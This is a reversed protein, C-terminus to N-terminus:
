STTAARHGVELVALMEELRGDVLRVVEDNFVPWPHIQAASMYGLGPALQVPPLGNGSNVRHVPQVYRARHVRWQIVDEERLEPVVHRLGDITESHIDDDTRTWIDSTQDRFRPVYVLANGKFEDKGALNSTEIIGTFPLARDTLNLIYYPTLSRRLLVAECVIGLYEVKRLTAAAHPLIQELWGAAIPAPVCLALARSPLDAGDIRVLWRADEDQEVPSIGQVPSGVCVSGGASEIAARLASFVRGYRGRVFGLKEAKGKAKRASLMRYITAWIFSAAFRDYEPGLKALLLPEWITEFVRSGAHRRLFTGVPMRDLRKWSRNLGCYMITWGLRLRDLLGLLPFSLFDAVTTMELLRKGDFFGTRTRNWGVADGLGVEEFLGLLASDTPSVCHYFREVRVDGLMSEGTLGGLYPDREHVVVKHGRQALRLALTLGTMGGGIIRVDPNM